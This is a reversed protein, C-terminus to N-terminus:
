GAIVVTYVCSTVDSPGYGPAVAYARIEMTGAKTVSIPTSYVQSAPNPNTHDTTYYITANPQADSLTVSQPFSFTGPAPSCAPPPAKPPPEQIDPVTLVDLAADSAADAGPGVYVDASAADTHTAPGADAGADTGADENSSSTIGGCAAVAIVGCALWTRNM